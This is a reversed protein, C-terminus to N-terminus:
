VSALSMVSFKKMLYISVGMFINQITDSDMENSEFVTWVPSVHHPQPLRMTGVAVDCTASLEGVYPSCKLADESTTTYIYVQGNSLMKLKNQVHTKNSGVLLTWRKQRNYYLYPQGSKGQFAMVVAFSNIM